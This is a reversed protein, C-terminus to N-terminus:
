RTFGDGFLPPRQLSWNFSHQSGEGSTKRDKVGLLVPHGGVVALKVSELTNSKM